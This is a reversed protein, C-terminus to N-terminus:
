YGPFFLHCFRICVPEVEGGKSEEVGADEGGGFGGVGEDFGAGGDDGDSDDDDDGNGNYGFGGNDGADCAGGEEQGFGEQQLGGWFNSSFSNNQGVGAAASPATRTGNFSSMSSSM